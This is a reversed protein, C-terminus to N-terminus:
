ATVLYPITAYTVLIGEALSKSYNYSLSRSGFICSLIYFIFLLSALGADLTMVFVDTMWSSGTPRGGDELLIQYECGKRSFPSAQWLGLFISLLIGVLGVIPFISHYLAVCIINLTITPISILFLVYRLRRVKQPVVNGEHAM